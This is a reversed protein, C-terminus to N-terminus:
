NHEKTITQVWLSTGSASIYMKLCEYDLNELTIEKGQMVGTPNIAFTTTGNSQTLSSTLGRYHQGADFWNIDRVLIPNLVGTTTSATACNFDNSGMIQVQANVGGGAVYTKNNFTYTVQDANKGIRTIYTSTASNNVFTVATTSTGSKTGIVDIPAGPIGGFNTQDSVPVKIFLLFGVIFIIGIMTIFSYWSIKKVTTDM